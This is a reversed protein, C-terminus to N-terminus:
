KPILRNLVYLRLRYNLRSILPALFWVIKYKVYLSSVRKVGKSKAYYWRRKSCTRIVESFVKNKFFYPFKETLDKYVKIVDRCTETKNSSLKGSKSNQHSGDNYTLPYTGPTEVWLIEEGEALVANTLWIDQAHISETKFNTLRDALSKSIMSGTAGIFYNDQNIVSKVLTQSFIHGEVNKKKFSLTINQQSPELTYQYSENKNTEKIGSFFRSPKNKSFYNILREIEQSSKPIFLSVTLASKKSKESAEILLKTTDPLLIDDADCFIIYDGQAANMGAQTARILGRNEQNIVRLTKVDNKREEIIKLSNDSSGDNVFVIESDGDFKQDIIGDIVQNLYKEKNYVTVVYSIKM